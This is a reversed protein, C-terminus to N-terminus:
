WVAEINEAAKTVRATMAEIKLRRAVSGSGQSAGDVRMLLGRFNRIQLRTLAQIMHVQEEDSYLNQFEASFLDPNCLANGAVGGTFTCYLKQGSTGTASGPDEPTTAASSSQQSGNSLENEHEHVRYTARLLRKHICEFMETLRDCIILIITLATSQTRCSACDLPKCCQSMIWKQLQVVQDFALATLKFDDDDLRQVVRLINQM